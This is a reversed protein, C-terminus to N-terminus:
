QNSWTKPREEEFESPAGEFRRTWVVVDINLDETSYTKYDIPSAEKSGLLEDYGNAVQYAVRAKRRSGINGWYEISRRFRRGFPDVVVVYGQFGKLTYSSLNEIDFSLAYGSVGREDAKSSIEFESLRVSGIASDIRSLRLRVELDRASMRALSDASPVSTSQPAKPGCSFVIGAAVCVVVLHGGALLRMTRFLDM